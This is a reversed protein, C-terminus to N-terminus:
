FFRIAMSFVWWFNNNKYKAFKLYEAICRLVRTKGFGKASTLNLGDFRLAQQIIDEFLKQQQDEINVKNQNTETM